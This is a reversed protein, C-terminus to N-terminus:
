APASSGSDSGSGSGSDQGTPPILAKALAACIRKASEEGLRERIRAYLRDLDEHSAGESNRILREVDQGLEESISYAAKIISQDSRQRINLTAPEEKGKRM